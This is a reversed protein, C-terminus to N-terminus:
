HLSKHIRDLMTKRDIVAPDAKADTRSMTFPVSGRLARGIASRDAYRVHISSSDEYFVYDQDSWMNLTQLLTDTGADFVQVVASQHDAAIGALKFKQGNVVQYEGPVMRDKVANGTRDKSDSTLGPHAPWISTTDNPMVYRGYCQNALMRWEAKFHGQNGWQQGFSNIFTFISDNVYGTCVVAHGGENVHDPDWRWVFDQQGQTAYGDDIFVSDIVILTLIPRGESLHYKWQEKDMDLSVMAPTHHPIAELMVKPPLTTCATIATDYPLEAWTCCGAIMAVEALQEFSVGTTCASRDFSKMLNFLYAPSYTVSPDPDGTRPYTRGDGLNRRYSMLGYGYAWGTCSYQRHQDGAPPFYKALDVTDRLTYGKPLKFNTEITMGTISNSGPIQAGFNRQASVCLVMLAVCLTAATRLITHMPDSPYPM